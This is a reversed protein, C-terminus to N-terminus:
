SPNKSILKGEDATEGMGLGFTGSIVTMIEKAPHTHPPINYGAPFRARM